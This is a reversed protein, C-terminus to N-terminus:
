RGCHLQPLTINECAHTLFETWLPTPTQRLAHQCVVAGGQASVGQGSVGWCVAVAASPVCRVQICEQQM